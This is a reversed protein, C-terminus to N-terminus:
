RQIHVRLAPFEATDEPLVSQQIRLADQCVVSLPFGFSDALTAMAAAFMVEFREAAVTLRLADFADWVDHLARLEDPSLVLQELVIPEKM